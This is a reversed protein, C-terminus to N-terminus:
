VGYLKKLRGEVTPRVSPAVDDGLCALVQELSPHEIIKAEQAQPAVQNAGSVLRVGRLRDSSDVSRDDACFDSDDGFYYLWSARWIPDKNQDLVKALYQPNPLWLRTKAINKQHLYAVNKETFGVTEAARKQAPNLANYDATDIPMFSWEDSDRVLGLDGLIFRKSTKHDISNWSEQAVDPRFIETSPLEKLARAIYQSQIILNRKGDTHAWSLVGTKPNQYFANGDAVYFWANQLQEQGDKCRDDQLERSTQLRYSQSQLELVKGLNGSVVNYELVKVM